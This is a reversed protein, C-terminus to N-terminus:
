PGRAGAAAYVADVMSQIARSEELPFPFAPGGRIAANFAAVQRAYQNTEPFRWAQMELGAHREVRAEGLGLPNFPVPLQLRAETGHLTVSQSIAARLSVHGTYLFSPFRATVQVTADIGGQWDISAHLIERPQDGTALRAAGLAYGGLDRLAGGGGPRNRFDEPDTLPATFAAEVLHLAGLAGGEV